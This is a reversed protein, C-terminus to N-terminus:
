IAGLGWNGVGGSQSSCKKPKENGLTPGRRQRARIRSRKLRLVKRLCSRNRVLGVLSTNAPSGGCSLWLRSSVGPLRAAWKGSLFEPPKFEGTLIASMTNWKSSFEPTGCLAKCFSTESKQGVAPLLGHYFWIVPRHFVFLCIPLNMWGSLKRIPGSRLLGSSGARSLRKKAAQELQQLEAALAANEKAVESYQGWFNWLLLGSVLALLGLGVGIIQSKKLRSPPRRVYLFDIAPRTGWVEDLIMGIHVAFRGANEPLTVRDLKVSNFPDIIQVPVGLQEALREVLQNEERALGLVFARAIRDPGLYETAAVTVTREAELVLRALQTTPSAEPLRVTRSFIARGEAIVSLDAEAGVRNVVLAPEPLSPFMRVVISAAALPRFVMHAPKLKMRRLVSIIRQFEERLLVAAMVKRRSRADGELPVFDVILNEPPQQLERVAQHLVLEPLEDDAAPPLQFHLLEIRSREVALIIRAGSFMPDSLLARLSGELDPRPALSGEGVDVLSQSGIARVTVERGRVSALVYRIEHQDWDIAVIRRM